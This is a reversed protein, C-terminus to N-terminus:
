FTHLIPIEFLRLLTRKFCQACGTYFNPTVVNISNGILSFSVLLQTTNQATGLSFCIPQVPAADTPSCLM